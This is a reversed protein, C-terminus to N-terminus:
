ALPPKRSTSFPSRKWRRPTAGSATSVNGPWASARCSNPWATPLGTGVPALSFAEFDDHEAVKPDGTLGKTYDEPIIMVQQLNLLTEWLPEEKEVSVRVTLEDVKEAKVFNGLRGRSRVVYPPFDAQYMRNLSIVVDDATMAGGNHVTVGERLKLEM